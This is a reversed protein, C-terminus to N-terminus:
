QEIVKIKFGAYYFFGNMAVDKSILYDLLPERGLFFYKFFPRSIIIVNAKEKEADYFLMSITSGEIVYDSADYIKEKKMEFGRRDYNM